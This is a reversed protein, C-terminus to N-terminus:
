FLADNEKFISVKVVMKAYIKGGNKSCKKMVYFAVVAYASASDSHL